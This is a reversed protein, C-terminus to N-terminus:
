NYIEDYQQFTLDLYNNFPNSENLIINELNDLNIIEKPDCM